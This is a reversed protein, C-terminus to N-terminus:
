KRRMSNIEEAINLMKAMQIYNKQVLYVEKALFYPIWANTDPNCEATELAELGFKEARKLDNESRAATTASRYEMCTSACGTLLIFFHISLLISLKKM